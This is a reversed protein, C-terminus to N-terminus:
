VVGLVSLEAAGFCRPMVAPCCDLLLEDAVWLALIAMVRLVREILLQHIMAPFSIHLYRCM